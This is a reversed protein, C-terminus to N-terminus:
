APEVYEHPFATSSVVDRISEIVEVSDPNNQLIRSILKLAENATMVQSEM